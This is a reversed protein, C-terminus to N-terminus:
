TTPQTPSPKRASATPPRLWSRRSMADAVNWAIARALLRTATLPRCRMLGQRVLYRPVTWLIYWALYRANQGWSGTLRHFLLGNRLWYYETQETTSTAGRVHVIQTAPAVICRQGARRLRWCWDVEEWYLFYDEVMLSSEVAIRTDVLLASGDVWDVPYPSTRRPATLHVAAGFWTIVGGASFIRGDPDLILPATVAAAEKRAAGLLVDLMAPDVVVTDNNLLLVYAYGQEHAHRIAANYGYAVGGNRPLAVVRVGLETQLREVEPQESGNDVVFVEHRTSLNTLSKICAKVLDFGNWNLIAVAVAAHLADARANASM